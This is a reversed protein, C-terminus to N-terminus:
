REVEHWPAVLYHTKPIGDLVQAFRVSVHRLRIIEEMWTPDKGNGSTVNSTSDGAELTPAPPQNVGGSMEVIESAGREAGEKLAM